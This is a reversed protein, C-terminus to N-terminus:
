TSSEKSSTSAGRHVARSLNQCDSPARDQRWFARRYLVIYAAQFLAAAGFPAAFAGAAIWHGAIAPGVARPTALSAVSLGNVLGRKGEGVLGANVAEMAGAAGREVAFRFIWIVSALAFTPLFPLLALLAVSIWQTGVFARVSGFRSSLYAMGFATIAASFFALAVIPGLRTPGVRFKMAFWYAILPGSLGVSIGHFLNIGGLRTLATKEEETLSRPEGMEEPRAQGLSKQNPLWSLMVANAIATVAGLCFLPRYAFVGPFHSVWLGPFIALIAGLGMGIFGLATNLNFVAARRSSPVVEALWALEVPVFCGPAGNAGRGFGGGIASISLIWSNSSLSAALFLGVMGIEYGVLLPRYGLRDSLPGVLISLVSGFLFSAAILAGIQTGSWRLQNLYLAFDVVLSGQAASRLLRALLLRKAPSPLDFVLDKASDAKNGNGGAASSHPRIQFDESRTV